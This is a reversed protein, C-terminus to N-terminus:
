SRKNDLKNKIGEVQQRHTRLTPLTSEVWQRIEPDQVDKQASEFKEIDEEHAEVMFDIYEKDFDNGKKMDQFKKVRDRHDDTMQQPLQMNKTKAISMLRENAQSHDKVMMAAFNKVEQNTAKQQAIKGLEVELMGSSAAETLFERTDEESGRNDRNMTESARGSATTDQYGENQATRRDSDCAVLTSLCFLGLVFINKKM